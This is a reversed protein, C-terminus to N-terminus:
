SPGEGESASQESAAIQDLDSEIYDIWKRAAVEDTEIKGIERRLRALWDSFKPRDNEKAVQKMLLSGSSTTPSFVQHLTYLSGLLITPMIAALEEPDIQELLWVAWRADGKQRELCNLLSKPLSDPDERLARNILLVDNKLAIGFAWERLEDVEDLFPEEPFPIAGRTRDQWSFPDNNIAAIAKDPSISIAEKMRELFPDLSELLKPHYEHIEKAAKLMEPYREFSIGPSSDEPLISGLLTDIIGRVEDNRVFLLNWSSLLDSAVRAKGGEPYYAERYSKLEGDIQDADLGEHREFYAGIFDLAKYRRRRDESPKGFINTSGGSEENEQPADGVSASVSYECVDKLVLEKTERDTDGKFFDAQGLSRLLPRLKKVSRFNISRRGGEELAELLADRAGEPMGDEDQLLQGVISSTSPAYLCKRWVTKESLNKYKPSGKIEPEMGDENCVLVVKRNVGTALADVIGFLEEVDIKCRELDDLVLLTSSGLLLEALMKPSAEYELGTKKKIQKMTKGLFSIGADRMLGVVANKGDSGVAYGRVIGLAIADYLDDPTRTGYASVRILSYPKDLSEVHDKLAHEVFHTKGCGWEGIIMLAYQDPAELYEEVAKKVAEEDM